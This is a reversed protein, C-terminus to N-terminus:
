AKSNLTNALRIFDAVTLEEARAEPRIGISQFDAESLRGKFNNRLMKRRQGFAVNTISEMVKFPVPLPEKRVKMHVVASDVKPPPVFAQSGITFAMRCECIYQCIVSLRGYDKSRPAAVIREAVEKQFMLLFFEYERAQLLLNILIPTGVNYPLNAIVARPRQAFAAIDSGLADEEIIKLRGGSLGALAQLSTVCRADKEIATISQAESELLAQTLGGPGPGIEVVHMGKLSGAERVIKRTLNLDLLFHQGLSKKAPLDQANISNM